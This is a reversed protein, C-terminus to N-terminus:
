VSSLAFHMYFGVWHNNAITRGESDGRQAVKHFWMSPLYLLEGARLVVHLPRLRAALPYCKLDPADPDVPIWPTRSRPEDAVM